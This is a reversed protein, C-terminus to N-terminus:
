GIGYAEHLEQDDPEDDNWLEVIVPAANRFGLLLIATGCGLCLLTATRAALAPLDILVFGDRLTPILSLGEWLAPLSIVFYTLYGPNQFLVRYLGWAVFALIIALEVYQTPSVNPHGHLERGTGAVALAILAVGGLLRALRADLTPRRVRAAAMVCALLVIIPWFWVISPRDAHWVGGSIATRRDAILIPITWSGVYTTGPALAITALAHLRGDHWSYDHSSSAPKWDPPTSANLKAPPTEAVPTQNLYYMASNNNVQIGLTNFRLYPAGRYDLVVVTVSAPASLWLRLDGDVVKANLRTPVRSVRALYNTAVPQVSGGHADAVSPPAAIWIMAGLLALAIRLRPGYM